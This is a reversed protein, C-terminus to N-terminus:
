LVITLVKYDDDIIPKVLCHAYNRVKIKYYIRYFKYFM